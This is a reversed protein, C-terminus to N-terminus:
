SAEWLANGGSAIESRRAAYDSRENMVRLEHGCAECAFLHINTEDNNPLPEIIRLVMAHGCM